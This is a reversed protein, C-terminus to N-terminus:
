DMAEALTPTGGHGSYSYYILGLAIWAVGVVKANLNTNWLVFATIVLGLAPPFAAQAIRGRLGQRRLHQLVSANVLIFGLLAGSCVVSTLVLRRYCSLASVLIIGLGLSALASRNRPSYDLGPPALPQTPPGGM